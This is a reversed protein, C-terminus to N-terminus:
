CVGLSSRSVSAGQMVGLRTRTKKRTGLGLGPGTAHGDNGLQLCKLGNM